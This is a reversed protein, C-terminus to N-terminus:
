NAPPQSASRAQQIGHQPITRTMWIRLDRWMQHMEAEGPAATAIPLEITVVPINNQLGAYNGLSGPFIGVRDLYLRGLQTPPVQLGDFDLLGYPAHISVIVDPQFEEILKLVYKSEPESLPTKGPWRRPDKKTTIEWYHKAQIKWDPTPFNRNLDVGNANTRVAKKRMLGDPNLIPVFRWHTNETDAQAEMLWHFALTASSPEDGHIAGVILVKLDSSDAQIDRFLIPRGEVSKEGSSQLQASDCLAKSVNPLKRYFEECAITQTALASFLLAAFLRSLNKAQAERQALKVPTIQITKM